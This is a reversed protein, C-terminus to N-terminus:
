LNLFAWNVDGRGWVDGRERRRGGGKARKPIDLAEADRTAGQQARAQADERAEANAAPVRAAGGTRARGDRRSAAATVRRPATAALLADPAAPLLALRPPLALAFEGAPEPPRGCLELGTALAFRAAFFTRM